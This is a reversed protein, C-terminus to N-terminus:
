ESEAEFETEFGGLWCSIFDFFGKFTELSVYMGFMPQESQRRIVIIVPVEVGLQVQTIRHPVGLVRFVSNFRGKVLKFFTNHLQMIMMLLLQISFVDRAKM